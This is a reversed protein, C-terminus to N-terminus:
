RGLRIWGGPMFVQIGGPHIQVVPPTWRVNGEPPMQWRGVIWTWTTGEWTWYGAIWMAGARPAPPITETRPPPATPAASPMIVAQAPPAINANATVTTTTTTQTSGAATAVIPPPVYRWMGAIWVYDTGNWQWGGGIWV